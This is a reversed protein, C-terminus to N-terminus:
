NRDNKPNVGKFYGLLYGLDHIFWRIISTFLLSLKSIHKINKIQMFKLLFLLYHLFRNLYNKTYHKPHYDKKIANETMVRSYIGYKFNRKILQIIKERYYHQVKAQPVYLIEENNAKLRWSLDVAESAKLNINFPKDPLKKRKYSINQTALSITRHTKDFFSNLDEIKKNFPILADRFTMYKRYLHGTFPIIGQNFIETKGGICCVDEKELHKEHLKELWDNDAICDDDIFAVIDKDSVKCVYNRAQPINYSPCYHYKIDIDTSVKDIYKRLDKNKNGDIVIIENPKLSNSIVSQLCRRFKEKRGKTIIGVSVDM